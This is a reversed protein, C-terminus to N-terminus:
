AIRRVAKKKKKKRYRKEGTAKERTQSRKERKNESALCFDPSSTLIATIPLLPTPRLVWQLLCSWGGQGGLRSHPEEGCVVSPCGWELGVEGTILVSVGAEWAWAQPLGRCFCFMTVKSEPM